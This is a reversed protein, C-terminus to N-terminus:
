EATVSSIETAGLAEVQAIAARMDAAEVVQEAQFSVRFRRTPRTSSSSGSRHEAGQRGTPRPGAANTSRSPSTRPASTSAVRASAGAPQARGRRRRAGHRQAARMVSTQSVGFQRALEAASTRTEAYLRALEREQEVSLKRSSREGSAQAQEGDGGGTTPTSLVSDPTEDDM